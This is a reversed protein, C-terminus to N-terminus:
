GWLKELEYLERSEDQMIHVIIQDLDVVVWDSVQQGEFGLVLLKEEKASAILKDAIAAVHRNSTATCIIMYDTISSKGQVDITVINEAKMDDLKDIIFDHMENISLVAEKKTILKYRVRSIM